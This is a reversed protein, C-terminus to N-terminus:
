RYFLLGTLREKGRKEKYFVREKVRKSKTFLDVKVRKSIIWFTASYDM